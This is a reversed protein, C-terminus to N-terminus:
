DGDSAPETRLLSELQSRSVYLRSGTKIHPIHGQQVMRLARKYNRESRVGFLYAALDSITLLEGHMAGEQQLRSLRRSSSVGM